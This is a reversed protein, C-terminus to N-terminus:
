CHLKIMNLVHLIEVKEINTNCFAKKQSNECKICASNVKNIVIEFTQPMVEDNQLKM